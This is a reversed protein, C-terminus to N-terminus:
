NQGREERGEGPFSFTERKKGTLRSGFLSWFSGFLILLIGVLMPFPIVEGLILMALIPALAPKFFFVLSATQAPLYEMAMFYCLYGGGTVAIGVYLLIPLTEVSFGRFIPVDAFDRLGIRNLYAAVSDIRSVFAYLLMEAGAALSCFWTTVLGGYRCTEKKGIVGYLAFAIASLLASAFGFTSFDKRGPLIIAIVGLFQFFLAVMTQRRIKEKLWFSAFLSVFLTNTCFLVSVTSANTYEIALQFLNMGLFLGVASIAALKGMVSLSLRLSDKKLKLLAFPTLFIGGILFRLMTLQLSQYTGACFKLSIEMSSFLLTALGVFGYGMVKERQARAM